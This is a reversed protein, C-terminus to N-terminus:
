QRTLVEIVARAVRDIDEQSLEQHIPLELCRERWPAVEAALDAPCTDHANPWFNGSQVGLAELQAQVRERRPVFVPLLLPCVGPALEPFPIAVYPRLWLVLRQYNARRRAIVWERNTFRILQRTWRSVGYDVLRPDWRSGGSSVTAQREWGLMRKVFGSARTAAREVGSLGNAQLTTHVLDLTQVLTSMAPPARLESSQHPSVLYGGHPLPLTKYLSFISLDGVSGLWAGNSRSFLALACDEILRIGHVDCFGRLASLPQPLGFYHIVYLAAVSDDLRRGVDELDVRLDRDVRYHRVRCGAALLADIEVGEHYAPVLITSGKPLGLRTVGHYLAVRGSFAWGHPVSFPFWTQWQTQVRGARRLGSLTPSGPVTM